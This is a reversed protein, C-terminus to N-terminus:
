KTRSGGRAEPLIPKNKKRVAEIKAKAATVAASDLINIVKLILQKDRPQTIEYIDLLTLLAGLDKGIYTPFDGPIYVDRLQNFMNLALLVIPPFDNLDLPMVKPDPEIGQAECLLLYTEKTVKSAAPSNIQKAFRQLATELEQQRNAVFPKSRM